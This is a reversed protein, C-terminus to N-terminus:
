FAKRFSARWASPIVGTPEVKRAGVFTALQTIASVVSEGADKSQPGAEAHVARMTLQQQKRDVIPDIRGILQDGHLVPLVYYGYKRKAAPTYIEITYDFGWLLRTRDRDRILNDFPSLLTTRPKWKGGQLSELVPLDDAHVYWTGPWASFGDRVEVREILGEAELSKLVAVLGPYRGAIFHRDIDRMRAVGLARLSRQAAEQVVQRESMSHRPTWAPLWREALDWWRRGSERAAVALFGRIWLGTLMRDINRGGTWGSSQWAHESRDEFSSAPLPGRRRIEYLVHRKLAANSAIWASGQRFWSSTGRQASLMLRRHIPYDETLVISAAHAWYEFLQKREWQLADLTARPYNGLRSWVVLRHSPAVVNTPDLQLCGLQRVLALIGDADARPRDGALRQATIALRRAVTPSITRM